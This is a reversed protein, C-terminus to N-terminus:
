GSSAGAEPRATTSTITRTAGARAQPLTAREM